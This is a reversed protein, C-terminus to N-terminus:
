SGEGKADEAQPSGLGDFADQDAMMREHAAMLEAMSAYGWAAIRPDPEIVGLAQVDFWEPQAGEGLQPKTESLRWDFPGREVLPHNVGARVRWAVAESGHPAECKLTLLGDVEEFVAECTQCTWGQVEGGCLQCHPAESGHPNLLAARLVEIEPTLNIPFGAEKLRERAADEVRVVAWAAERVNPETNPATM